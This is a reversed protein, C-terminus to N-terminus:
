TAGGSPPCATFWVCALALYESNGEGPVLPGKDHEQPRSPTLAEAEAIADPGTSARIEDDHLVVVGGNETHIVTIHHAHGSEAFPELLVGLGAPPVVMSAGTDTLITLPRRLRGTSTM